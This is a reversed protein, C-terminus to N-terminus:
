PLNKVIMPGIWKTLPIPLWKWAAIMLAFKPNNPNLSPMDNDNALWYHWYLPKPKAGWQQKFRFTGTANSSRGFDFYGYNNNIAFRLIEWYMLMNMSLKNVERVTSAWPIELTNGQGILFAAAVPRKSLRIVVIRSQEPFSQLINRFLSQGYVPTGLDRMNRAFVHYFDELLESHGFLVQPNERQPRRIQARLKPTFSQWLADEERPLPLIMNVKDTRVPLGKRPIDDRYEIHSVGLSAAHTNATDMLRQEIAPSDAVAGGYNFYPMSVLFDGFLRSRLRILPLVGMINGSANRAQFYHGEHGFTRRILARWEARHYISAAPNGEVYQNWALQAEQNGTELMSISVEGNNESADVYRSGELIATSSEGTEREGDEPGGRSAFFALIQAELDQLQQAVAKMEASYAQMQEKLSEVPHGNRKAEGIERSIQRTQDQIEQHQSQQKLYTEWLAKLRDAQHGDNECGQHRFAAIPDSLIYKKQQKLDKKM